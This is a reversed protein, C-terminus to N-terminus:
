VYGSIMANWSVVSRQHMGDFLHHAVDINGSKAYMAVLSNQVFDGSELGSQIICNHICKGQQLTGSYACAQLLSAMTTSDAQVKALRMEYFCALTKNAQGNYSYGAIMANWTAVNRKPMRNFIQQAIEVSECKSYMDM